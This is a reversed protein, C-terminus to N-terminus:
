LLGAAEVLELNVVENVALDLADEGLRPARAEEVGVHLALRVGVLGALTAVHDQLPHLYEVPVVPIL